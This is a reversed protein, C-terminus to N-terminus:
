NMFNEETSSMVKYVFVGIFVVFVVAIIGIM